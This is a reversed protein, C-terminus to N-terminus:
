AKERLRRTGTPRGRRTFDTEVFLEMVDVGLARAVREASERSVKGVGETMRLVTNPAVGAVMALARAGGISGRAGDRGYARPFQEDILRTMKESDM